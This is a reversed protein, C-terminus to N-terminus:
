LLLRPGSGAGRNTRRPASRRQSRRPRRCRQEGRACRKSCGKLDGCILCDLSMRRAANM